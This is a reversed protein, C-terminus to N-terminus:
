EIALIFPTMNAYLSQVFTRGSLVGTAQSIVLGPGIRFDGNQDTSTFFVKGSNLQVTEKSQVPDAVGTQPLAGYNSGAGVYEFVYGSASIYSRQYFNVISGDPFLDPRTVAEGLEIIHYAGPRSWYSLGAYTMNYNGGTELDYILQQLILGVDRRCKAYQIGSGPGALPDVNSSAALTSPYQQQVYAYVESSLFDINNQILVVASGAGSPVTGTQTILNPPVVVEAAQINTSGIINVTDRFRLDIFPQANGGGVVTNSIFQTATNGTTRTVPINAIIQDVVSKLHNLSDVHASVQDQSPGQYYAPADNYASLINLNPRYPPDAPTSTQVTYYSNGCFYLTFYTANTIDGGGNTLAQNFVISNYNVDTVVTGTAAYWIGYGPNDIFEDPNTTINGLSNLYNGNGDHLYPFSDYQYGFQDRIFVSNGIYVDTTDINALDITGAVLTSTSPQTNLFGPFGQENKQLVYSNTGPDYVTEPPIIEMVLGIHPRNGLDPVFVEVRGGAGPWYGTPYFQDLYPLPNGNNDIGDPSFPYARYPPNYITGSFSRSGYGKAVLCLDGFNANSNVISAIGGNDVIVGTSAFITFVSVLQAYGNNTIHIGIGGQTLQTFADYVFSQIPSRSSIVSGDVLSGGMGGITDVKRIDWTNASGSLQLSLAEVQSNQLPFVYTDGFYLTANTGHGITATSLGIIFTNDSIQDLSTITPAIRVDAGNIGTLAFLGGGAYSPPAARPGNTIINTIIDFNRRVAEQPMYANGYQFFPNIVQTAVTGSQAIVPMNAIVKLAIDRAHNIAMTTTTEQGTVYNYGQNWYALGAEISKQNGGLIIDQSVADVILGTDRYCLEQNYDFSTPGAFTDNIFAIVEAVIFTKNAEMLNYANLVNPNSDITLGIPVKPGAWDPGNDIIGVIANIKNQLAEVEVITAPALMTVQTTATQFPTEIVQATVIKPILTSIFQYAAGTEPIENPIATVNTFNYYYVGAKVSQKNGGHLLDFSVSDIIYGLDRYCTDTNFQFGPNNSIIWALTDNQMSTKNVQLSNYASIVNIDISPLGNSIISDTVGSTGGTLIGTIKNFLNGVTTGESGAYGIALSRLQNIANTTTTIESAIRGTYASHNWYQLGAFTSESVSDYLLDLSISDVILATDRQCTATNYVFPTSNYTKNIYAITEEVIFPRNVKLIEYANIISTTTTAILSIPKLESVASIGNNIINTLTSIAQQILNASTLDGAPLNLVQKIKTQLPTVSINQVINGALTGLWTFADTTQIEQGQITTTTDTFGYYSFGAQISQRNGGHLLDFSISDIIYGVDRYCTSTSFVFGINTATVSAVIESALYDKNAQLLNYANQVDSLNSATGNSVIRDTWGVTNGGLINIIDNFYNTIATVQVGSAYNSSTTQIGSTYRNVGVLADTTTTINQVIKVSLDRLYTVADITQNIENPIQGVFNGQNWYQIGAFTSQSFTPTPYLLDDAISDVILGTDRRCKIQNFPFTQFTNNIWNITDEQIFARNAQMLIEASTFAADPGPSNYSTPAVSPGNEIVNTVINFLNSISPISVDGGTLVTNIVQTGIPIGAPPTLVPCTENLVITRCLQSLYDIASICQTQQGPIVSTVGNWYASGSEIAKQNGGFAVDYAINEVLIGTDRYSLQRSYGPTQDFNGITQDIFAIVEYQIFERNRQLINWANIDEQDGSEALNIPTKIVGDPGNRIIGTIIDINNLIKSVQHSTGPVLDIDTLPTHQTHADQYPNAITQGTVINSIISKIFNYAATTQPIEDIATTPANIVSVDSYAYYYVGSKISQLNGNTILDFCISDIIYRVDRMCTEINYDFLPNNTAIWDIVDSQFTPINEVLANYAAVTDADTTPLSASVITDTVGTTGDNLIGIIVDFLDDIRGAPGSGGAANAVTHAISKLYSIAATTTTIEAPIQGTYTGQVYYQIGAFTSDSTSKYLMDNSIADVILGTDRLCTSANYSFSGSNFQQEIFAVIQTQLFPKNALMLTRANFFGQNQQGANISMGLSLPPAGTHVWLDGTDDTIYGDLNSPNVINLLDTSSTVHSVGINVTNQLSGTYQTSSSGPQGANIFGAVPLNDFTVTITTTNAEWSGMGVAKPIQVVEDPVFMIGDKLWPGTLNTCNQVYPSHFLDIRDDGTLPPFATAYAGRNYGLAYTGPLLGSRGNLFQMFALYCGSNLHFLDQTKNIPEISTTRLDSGMISTYPKLQLPNNELYHGPSVRIQTGSQYYPSKLAAGVTRCARSPDMARGDNTDDGDMTVYLVNTVVPATGIPNTGRVRLEGFIDTLGGAPKISVPGATSSIIKTYLQDVYEAGGIHVEGLIGVGGTVTFAGTTPSTSTSTSAVYIQDVSLKGQGPNYTLGGDPYQSQNDAWLYTGQNLQDAFIPYFVSDANTATIVLQSSTNALAVRGYIFGGVNLDKEIGVGGAVYVAGAIREATNGFINNPDYQYGFPNQVNATSNILLSESVDASSPSVIVRGTASTVLYINGGPSAITTDGNPTVNKTGSIRTTM